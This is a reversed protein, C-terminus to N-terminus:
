LCVITSLICKSLWYLKGFGTVFNQEELRSDARSNSNFWVSYKSGINLETKDCNYVQQSLDEGEIIRAFSNVFKEAAAKDASVAQRHNM